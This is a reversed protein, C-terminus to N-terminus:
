FKPFPFTSLPSPRRHAKALLSPNTEAARAFQQARTLSPWRQKGIEALEKCAAESEDVNSQYAANKAVAFARRLVVGAESQDTFIKAFAQADTLDPNDRKASEVVLETLEHETIGYSNDDEVIVKAIAVAGARKALEALKTKHDMTDESKTLRRLMAAGRPNHLLHALAEEHTKHSGSQVLLDAVKHAPHDNGDKEVAGAADVHADTDHDGGCTACTAKYLKAAVKALARAFSEPIKVGQFMKLFPNESEDDAPLHDAHGTGHAKIYQEEAHRLATAGESVARAREEASLEAPRDDASDDRKSIVVRCSEGAGRDVLSVENIRLRTLVKAKPPQKTM